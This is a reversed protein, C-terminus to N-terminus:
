AYTCLASGLQDELVWLSTYGLSTYCRTTRLQLGDHAKGTSTFKSGTSHVTLQSSKYVPPSVRLGHLRGNEYLRRVGSMM